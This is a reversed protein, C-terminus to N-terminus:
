GKGFRADANAVVVFRIKQTLARRLVEELLDLLPHTLPLLCPAWLAELINLERVLLHLPLEGVGDVALGRVAEVGVVHRLPLAGHLRM